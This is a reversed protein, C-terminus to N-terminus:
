KLWFIVHIFVLINLFASDLTESIMVKFSLRVSSPIAPFSGKPPLCSILPYLYPPTRLKSIFSLLTPHGGPHVHPRGPSQLLGTPHSTGLKCLFFCRGNSGQNFTLEAAALPLALHNRPSKKCGLIWVRMCAHAHAHACM